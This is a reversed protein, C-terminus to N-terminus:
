GAAAGAARPAAPDPAADRLARAALLGFLLLLAAFGLPVHAHLAAQRAGLPAFWALALATAEWRAFGRRVGHAVAFALAPGLLAMDYDVIYPSVLLSGTVLLAARLEPAAGSRWTWAIAAAVPLAVAAQAAYAPASGGGWMRVAAFATQIPAWGTAGADLIVQRSHGASALFAAWSDWGFLLGSAGFLAAVTAAAAAIATWRRGAALALPVLLGLQPKYALCGFCIGALVPRRDLVLLGGGFLLATLFGNHGHTLCVLVAPGGLAVLLTDRDPLIRRLVALAGALSAAQWLALAPLYPLAALLAAVLLFIPPYHWSYFPTGPGFAAREAAHHTAFDYSSAARGELATRGAVWVNSFDTGIPRGWGDVTGTRTALLYGIALLTGCLALVSITRVFPRDLWAGTALRDLPPALTRSM